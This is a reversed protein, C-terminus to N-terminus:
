QKASDPIPLNHPDKKPDKLQERLKEVIEPTLIHEIEEADRHVHDPAIDMKQALYTEWLRHKEIIVAGAELGKKTAEIYHAFVNIYGRRRLTKIIKKNPIISRYESKHLKVRGHEYHRYISGLANEIATKFEQKKFQIYRTVIGQKPAFFLSAIFFFTAVLVMVPGTPMKAYTMSIFSGSAGAFMGFCMSLFVVGHLSQSWLLATVAPIILLAATLIVGVAQLSVVITVIFLTMFLTEVLRRNIGIISAFDADFICVKLEKWFMVVLIMVLVFVGSIWIVDQQLLSAAQGFLFSELGAQAANPLKQIYTLLLVGIGFFVSLVIAMATDTKIKTNKVIFNMYFTGVLSALLAGLLLGPLFKSQLIIFAIAIGPLSAHALTDGLLGQRRLIAFVGIMGASAGLILCGFFVYVSNITSFLSTLM